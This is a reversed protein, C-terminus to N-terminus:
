YVLHACDDSKLWGEPPAEHRVLKARNFRAAALATTAPGGAEGEEKAAARLAKLGLTTAAEVGARVDGDAHSTAPASSAAAEAPAPEAETSGAGAVAASHVVERVAAPTTERVWIWSDAGGPAIVGKPADTGEHVDHIRQNFGKSILRVAPEGRPKKKALAEGTTL